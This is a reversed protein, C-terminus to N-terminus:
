TGDIFTLKFHGVASIAVCIALTVLFIYFSCLAKDSQLLDGLRRLLYIRKWCIISHEPRVGATRSDLGCQRLIVIFAWKMIYPCRCRCQWTMFAPVTACHQSVCARQLNQAFSYFAVGRAEVDVTTNRQIRTVRQCGSVARRTCLHIIVRGLNDRARSAVWRAILVAVARM